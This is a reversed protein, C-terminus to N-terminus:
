IPLQTPLVPAALAVTNSILSPVPFLIHVCLLISYCLGGPM